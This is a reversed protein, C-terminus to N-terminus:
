QLDLQLDNSALRLNLSDKNYQAVNKCFPHIVLNSQIGKNVPNSKLNEFYKCPPSTVM